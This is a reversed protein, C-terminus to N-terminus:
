RLHPDSWELFYAVSTCAGGSGRSFPQDLHVSPDPVTLIKKNGM